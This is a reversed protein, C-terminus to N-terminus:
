ENMTNLCIEDGFFIICDSDKGHLDLLDNSVMVNYLKEIIKTTVFCDPVFALTPLFAYFAKDCM